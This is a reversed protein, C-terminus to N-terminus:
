MRVAGGLHAHNGVFTCQEFTPFAMTCSSVAGGDYSTNSEFLCGQILPTVVMDCCLAGGEGLAENDRFICNRITPATDEGGCFIGGGWDAFGRTITIGDLIAEPHEGNFFVFARRHDGPGADCDVVCTEASGSQSRITIEKGRYDVDCNGPGTFVGDTLEIIDGNVVADVAAQITPFDGTGHPDVVYTTASVVAPIVLMLGVLLMRRQM